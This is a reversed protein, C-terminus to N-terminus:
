TAFLITNCHFECAVSWCVTLFCICSCLTSFLLCVRKDQLKNTAEKIAQPKTRSYEKRIDRATMSNLTKLTEQFTDVEDQLATRTTKLDTVVQNLQQLKIAQL